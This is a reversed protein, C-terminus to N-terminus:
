LDKQLLFSISHPTNSDGSRCFSWEDPQYYRKSITGMQSLHVLSSIWSHWKLGFSQDCNLPKNGTAPLHDRQFAEKPRYIPPMQVVLWYFRVGSWISCPTAKHTSVEGFYWMGHFFSKHLHADRVMMRCSPVTGEVKIHLSPFLLPLIVHITTWHDLSHPLLPVPSM